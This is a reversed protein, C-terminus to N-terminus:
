EPDALEALLAPDFPYPVARGGRLPLVITATGPTGEAGDQNKLGIDLKVVGFAGMKDTATVRGWATLTDGVPNMGRFQFGIKWMWGSEGVWDALLQILVNQKWSGSVLIDPLHDHETAYRWDYHIRHWNETAASWRMLHAPSIPGKVLTPVDMGVTTDEFFLADM